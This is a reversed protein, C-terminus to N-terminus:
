FRPCNLEKKSLRLNTKFLYSINLQLTNIPQLYFTGDIDKSGYSQLSQNYILEFVFENFQYSASYAIGLDKFIPKEDYFKKADNGYLFSTGIGISFKEFFIYNLYATSLLQNITFYEKTCWFGCTPIANESKLFSSNLSVFFSPNIAIEIKIGITPTLRSKKQLKDVSYASLSDVVLLPKISEVYTQNLGVTPGISLQANIFPSYIILLFIVIIERM